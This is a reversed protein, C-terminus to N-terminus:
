KLIIIEAFERFAGHGGNLKCVYDVSNCIKEVADNPAASFGINSMIEYDNVDDGIYAIESPHVNFKKCIKPLLLNKDLIGSFLEIKIKKARQKVIQSNERTIMITPIKIEKLLEMGMSDRTNFKKMAEGKDSYYMCGDTLVGDVDSLVLKIKQSLKKLEKKSKKMIISRVNFIHINFNYNKNCLLDAM